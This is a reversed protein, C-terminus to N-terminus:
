QNSIAQILHLKYRYLFVAVDAGLCAAICTEANSPWLAWFAMVFPQYGVTVMLGAILAKIALFLAATISLSVAGIAVIFATKAGVVSVIFAFFSGIATIIAGM